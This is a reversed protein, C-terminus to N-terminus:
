ALSGIVEMKKDPTKPFNVEAQKLSRYRSQKTSFYSALPEEPEVPKPQIKLACSLRMREWNKRKREEHLTANLVKTVIRQYRKREAYIKKKYKEPSKKHCCKCYDKSSKHLRRKPAM